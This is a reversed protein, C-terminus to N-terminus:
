YEQIKNEVNKENVLVGCEFTLEQTFHHNFLRNYHAGDKPAILMQDSFWWAFLYFDSDDFKGTLAKFLIKLLSPQYKRFEKPYKKKYYRRLAFLGLTKGSRTYLNANAIYLHNQYLEMHFVCGRGNCTSRGYHIGGYKETIQPLDDVPHNSANFYKFNYYLEDCIQATM